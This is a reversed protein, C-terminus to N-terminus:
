KADRMLDDIARDIESPKIEGLGAINLVNPFRNFELSERNCLRSRIFEYRAANATMTKIQPVLDCLSAQKAAVGGNLLADIERVLRDHDALVEEYDSAEPRLYLALGHKKGEETIEDAKYYLGAIGYYDPERKTM